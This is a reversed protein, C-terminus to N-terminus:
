LQIKLQKSLVKPGYRSELSYYCRNGSRTRTNVESELDNDRRIVSQLYKFHLVRKYYHRKGKIFEGQQDQKKTWNYYINNCLLIVYEGKKAYSDLGVKRAANISKKWKQKITKSNNGLLTSGDTYMLLGIITNMNKLSRIYLALFNKKTKPRYVAYVKVFNLASEENRNYNRFYTRDM